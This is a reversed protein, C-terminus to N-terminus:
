VWRRRQREGKSLRPIWSKLTFRPASRMEEPLLLGTGLKTLVKGIQEKMAHKGTFLDVIRGQDLYLGVDEEWRIAGICPLEMEKGIDELSVEGQYKRGRCDAVLLRFGDPDIDYISSISRTWRHMDEQFCALDRTTILVKQDAHLLGCITAANDWYSSVDLICYDFTQSATDLLYEIDQPVFYEAQERLMNGFLVFLNSLRMDQYCYRLLRVKTLLSSRLEARLMDLTVAPNDVGMYRHIKSSKLNLCLYGVSQHTRQALAAAFGFATVTTGINPTTGTFLISKM